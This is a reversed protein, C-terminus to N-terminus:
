QAVQPLRFTVTLDAETEIPQGDLMTPKYQWQRIADSASAALTSDGSMVAVSKVTGDRGIAIHLKVIGEVRQQSAEAPYAIETRQVLHGIQLNGGHQVGTEEPLPIYVRASVAVSNSASVPADPLSLVQTAGDGADAGSARGSGNSKGNSAAPEGRRVTFNPAAKDTLAPAANASSPTAGSGSPPVSAGKPDASTEDSASGANVGSPSAPQAPTLSASSAGAPDNGNPQATSAASGGTFLSRVSALIQHVGVHSASIGLYFSLGALIVVIGVVQLWRRPEREEAEEQAKAAVNLNLISSGAWSSLREVPREESDVVEGTAAEARSGPDAASEPTTGAQMPTPAAARATAKNALAILMASTKASPTPKADAAFGNSGAGDGAISAEFATITAGGVAAGDVEADGSEPRAVQEEDSDALAEADHEESAMWKRIQNGADEPLDIFEIGAVRKSDGTWAIRGGAEVWVLSQPMQFRIKPLVDAAMGVASRVGLGGEGLNLVLGGNDEGLDVYALSQIQRRAHSRRDTTGVSNETLQPTDAM